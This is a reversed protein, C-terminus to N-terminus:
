QKTNKKTAGWGQVFQSGFNEPFEEIGPFGLRIDRGSNPVHSTGFIYDWCSLTIGFNVG